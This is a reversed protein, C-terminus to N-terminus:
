RLLSAWRDLAAAILPLRPAARAPEHGAWVLLGAALGAFATRDAPGNPGGANRYAAVGARVVGPDPEQPGLDGCALLFAHHVLEWWPAQPGALDFDLLVPGAPGVLINHRTLDRHCLVAPPRALRALDALDPPGDMWLPSNKTSSDTSPRLGIRAITAVTWGLWAGLRADPVAPGRGEVRAWVRLTEGDLEVPDGAAPATAIGAAAAARELRVSDTMPDRSSKVVWAGRDTTMTWVAAGGRGPLRRVPGRPRGLGFLRAVTEPPPIVEDTDGRRRGRAPLM